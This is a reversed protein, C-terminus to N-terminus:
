DPEIICRNVLDRLRNVQCGISWREPNKKRVNLLQFSFSFCEQNCELSVLKKAWSGVRKWVHVIIRFFNSGQSMKEYCCRMGERLLHVIKPIIKWRATVNKAM